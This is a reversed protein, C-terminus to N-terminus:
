PSETAIGVTSAVEASAVFVFTHKRERSVCCSLRMSSERASCVRQRPRAPVPATTPTIVINRTSLQGAM